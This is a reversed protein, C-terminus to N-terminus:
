TFEGEMDTSSFDDMPFYVTEGTKQNKYIALIMEVQM